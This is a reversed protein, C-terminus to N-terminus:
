HNLPRLSAVFEEYSTTINTLPKTVRALPKAQEVGCVTLPSVDGTVV